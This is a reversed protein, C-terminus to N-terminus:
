RGFPPESVPFLDCPEKLLGEDQSAPGVGALGQGVSAIEGTAHAGTGPGVTEFLLGVPLCGEQTEM